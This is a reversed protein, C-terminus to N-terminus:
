PFPAGRQTPGLQVSKRLAYVTETKDPLLEVEDTMPLNYRAVVEKLAALLLGEGSRAAAEQDM